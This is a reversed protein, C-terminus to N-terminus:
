IEEREFDLASVIRDIHKEQKCCDCSGCREPEMEGRKIAAFKPAYYRIYELREDIMQQPIEILAIDPVPEKTVAALLFPLKNGEIAQYIAAQIDYGWYRIFSVRGGERDSWVSSFDRILKRDVIAKGPHYSDMMIKFRVGEIEGTKIVQQKGTAYEMYMPERKAREIARLVAAADMDPSGDRKLMGNETFYQYVAAIGSEFFLDFAHGQYLAASPTRTYTGRVESLAAFECREFACFQSHGMYKMDMEPSFYTEKNLRM